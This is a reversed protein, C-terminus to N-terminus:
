TGQQRRGTQSQACAAGTRVGLRQVQQLAIAVLGLQEVQVGTGGLLRLANFAKALHQLVGLGQILIEGQKGVVRIIEQLDILGSAAGHARYHIYVPIVDVEVIQSLIHCFLGLQVAGVGGRRVKFFQNVLISAYFIVASLTFFSQRDLLWCDKKASRLIESYGSWSAAVPVATVSQTSWRRLGGAGPIVRGCSQCRLLYKVEERRLPEWPGEVAATRRIDVGLAQGVKQAYAKWRKGHNQCGYCTHLLEHLLTNRLLEPQGLLRASVQITFAGEKRICCGLRRQARSNVEVQPSIEWSIPVGMGRLEEALAALQANLEEQTM